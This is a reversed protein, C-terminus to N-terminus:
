GKPEPNNLYTAYEREALAVMDLYFRKENGAKHGGCLVIGNRDPAFAFFARIPTGRSQVRLEKLNSFRTGKLTDAFPRHLGPGKEQLIVLAALVSRRDTDNLSCLWTDFTDTTKITWM